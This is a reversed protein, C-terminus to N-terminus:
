TAAEAREMAVGLYALYARTLEAVLEEDGYTTDSRLSDWLLVERLTYFMQQFGFRIALPPDPHTMATAHTLLVSQFRPFLEDWARQERARFRWDASQRAKLYLSRLVGRQQSYTTVFLRAVEAIIAPLPQSDWHGPTLLATIAQEFEVFFREDLAQLLAEKDRFRGYFAGVSADARQVVEAITLEDFTKTELIQAAADLMQHMSARSREQQPPQTLYAAFTM